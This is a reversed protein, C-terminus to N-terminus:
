TRAPEACFGGHVAQVAMTSHREWTPADHFAVIRAMGEPLGMDANSVAEAAEAAEVAGAGATAAAAAATTAAAAASASAPLGDLDEVRVEDGHDQPRPSRPALGSGAGSRRGAPTIPAGAVADGGVGVGPVVAPSQTATSAPLSARAPSGAAGVSLPPVLSGTPSGPLDQEAPVGTARSGGVPPPPSRAARQKARLERDRDRRRQTRQRLLDDVNSTDVVGHEAADQARYAAAAAAASDAVDGAADDGSPVAQVYELDAYDAEHAGESEDESRSGDARILQARGAARRKRREILVAQTPLPSVRM